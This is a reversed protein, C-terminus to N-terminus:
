AKLERSRGSVGLSGLDIDQEVILNIGPRQVKVPSVCHGRFVWHKSSKQPRPAGGFIMWSRLDQKLAVNRGDRLTARHIQAISGAAIAETQIASFVEELPLPIERVLVKEIEMWSVPPVEDQLSSLADIYDAPLLDPRTSLLQGLKVYIPGLDILINRLVEPAPLDPEDTRTGSLLSRMYDWGHSFVVEAIEGQRSSTHTFRSILTM